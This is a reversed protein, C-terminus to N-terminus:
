DAKLPYRRPRNYRAQRRLRPGSREGHFFSVQSTRTTRWSRSNPYRPGTLCTTTAQRPLNVLRRLRRVWRRAKPLPSSSHPPFLGFLVHRYFLPAHYFSTSLYTLRCREECSQRLLIPFQIYSKLRRRASPGKSSPPDVSSVARRSYLCCGWGM